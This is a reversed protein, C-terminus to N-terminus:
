YRVYKKFIMRTAAQSDTEYFLNPDRVHPFYRNLFAQGFRQNKYRDTTWYCVTFAAFTEITIKNCERM